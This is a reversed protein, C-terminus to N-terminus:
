VKLQKSMFFSLAAAGVAPVADALPEAHLSAVPLNDGGAADDDPLPAGPDM